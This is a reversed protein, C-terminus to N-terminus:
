GSRSRTTGQRRLEIPQRDAGADVAKRGGGVQRRGAAECEIASADVDELDPARESGVHQRRHGQQVAGIRAVDEPLDGARRREVADVKDAIHNGLRADGGPAAARGGTAAVGVGATVTGGDSPAASLKATRPPVATVAAPAPLTIVPSTPTEGPREMVPKGADAVTTSGNAVCLSANAPAACVAAPVRYAFKAAAPGQLGKGACSLPRVTLGPM